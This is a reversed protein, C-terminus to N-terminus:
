TLWGGGPLLELLESPAEPDDRDVVALVRLGGPSSTFLLGEAKDRLPEGREDLIPALACDGTRDDLRGIAVGSVPGDRTADPSAEACALFAIEGRPGLTADTFTLRVGSAAGLRWEAVDRLPPCPAGTELYALLEDLGIRATADVPARGDRPAGNGRQFFIVDDGDIMAGEVNLESGSFRAEARMTAYLAPAHVIRAHEAADVLVVRERAASSGSGFAVLRGGVAIQAELDLKDHKNGRADDFQRVGDESPLPIARVVGREADVIAVFSADDQVVALRGRPLRALSSGARVHGPRDLRPDPGATYRLETRAVVRAGLRPEIRALRATM